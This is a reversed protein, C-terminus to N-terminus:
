RKLEFVLTSPCSEDLQVSRRSGAVNYTCIWEFKGKDNNSRQSKFLTGEIIASKPLVPPAPVAPPEPPPAPPVQALAASACLVCLM